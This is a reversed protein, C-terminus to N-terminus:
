DFEAESITVAWGAMETPGPLYPIVVVVVAPNSGQGPDVIELIYPQRYEGESLGGGLWEYAWASRTALKAAAAATLRDGVQFRAPM